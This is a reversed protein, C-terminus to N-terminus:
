VHRDRVPPTWGLAILAEVTEEPLFIHADCSIPEPVAVLALELTPIGGARV